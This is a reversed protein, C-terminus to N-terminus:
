PARSLNFKWYINNSALFDHVADNQIAKKIWKAAAVFTSFNDSYIKEPRGSRAIFKKLTPLFRELTQDPLLELCIPRTLSSTLLLIYAKVMTKERKMYYLPGAYDLGIVQFPREGVTRETPLSAQPPEKLAM